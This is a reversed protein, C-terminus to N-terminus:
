EYRLADVPKKKSAQIAPVIGSITGVVFSFALSFIILSPPFHTQFLTTGTAAIAGLSVLKSFGMGILIGVTGGATGLVGAEILNQGFIGAKVKDTFSKM